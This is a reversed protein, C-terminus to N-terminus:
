ALVEDVLDRLPPLVNSVVAVADARQSPDRIVLGALAVALLVAPVVAFLAGYALGNALLGGGAVSYRDLVRRGLAVAPQSIVREIIRGLRARAGGASSGAGDSLRGAGRVPRAPPGRRAGTPARRRPGEGRRTPRVAPRRAQHEPAQRRPGLWRDD